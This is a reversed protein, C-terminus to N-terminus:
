ERGFEKCNIHKSKLEAKLGELNGGEQWTVTAKIDRIFKTRQTQSEPQNRREGDYPWEEEGPCQGKM